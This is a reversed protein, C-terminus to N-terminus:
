RRRFIPGHDALSLGLGPRYLLPVSYGSARAERLLGGYKLDEVVERFAKSDQRLSLARALETPAYRFSRGRLREVTRRLQPFESYITDELRAESVERWAEEMARTTMLTGQVELDPDNRDCIALQASRAFRLMTIVNRPNPVGSSDTTRNVVWTVGDPKVPPLLAACLRRRAPASTLQSDFGLAKTIVTSEAVRRAILDVITPTDWRIKQRRLHTLNVFGEDQTIRNLLDTRLFLKSRVVTDGRGNIDMHARLLARLAPCEVARNEVFAEDLRDFIVWCRRGARELITMSSKLLRDWDTTQLSIGPPPERGAAQFEVSGTVMPNGSDDLKVGGAIRKPLMRKMLEVIRSWVSGPRDNVDLVGAADLDERLSTVGVNPGYTAVVHNGVLSAIYATWMVRFYAEDVEPVERALRQFLGSGVLNFAPVVDTTALERYETNARALRRAMASKGSGKPGLIVDSTDALVDMFASTGVFYQDLEVDSEADDAGMRLDRLLPTVKM